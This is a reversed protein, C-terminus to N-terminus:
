DFLPLEKDRLPRRVKKILQEDEIIKLAAAIVRFHEAVAAESWVPLDSLTYISLSREKERLKRSVDVIEFEVREGYFETDLFNRKVISALLGYQEVTFHTNKRPQLFYGKVIGGEVFFFPVRYSAFRDGGYPLKRPSLNFVSTTRGFAQPAALRVVEMNHTHGVMRMRSATATMLAKLDHLGQFARRVRKTGDLYNFNGGSPELALVLHAVASDVTSTDVRVIEPVSPAHRM